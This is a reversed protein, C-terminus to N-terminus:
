ELEQVRVRYTFVTEEGKRVPVIFVISYQDRKEYPFTHKLVEWEGNVPEIVEVKIDEDKHNRLMIEWEQEYRKDGLSTYDKLRREGAIDFATGCCLEVAEDKPTHDITDEGVFQYQLDSDTIGVQVTGAPLPIGLNNKVSNTFIIYVGIPLKFDQKKGASNAKEPKSISKYRKTISIDRAELLAIQKQQNNKLTTPRDLTYLHYEFLGETEFRKGDEEEGIDASFLDFDEYKLINETTEEVHVDGAVLKLEAETYTAGSENQLTVWGNL